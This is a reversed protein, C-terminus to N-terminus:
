FGISLSIRHVAGLKTFSQFAYDARLKAIELPAVVGVGFTSNQEDANLKYGARGFFIESYSYEIGLGVNEANDNPHNLQISATIRNQQDQLPEFAFGLRFMTPPSFGQWDNKVTGDYLRADGDPNVENGFNTLAVAFRSTGLGTWYFTGLDILFSRIKLVAFNEQVYRVTAGVAFQNTLKRGYTLGIAIDSYAFYEGTGLPQTETTVPMDDTRMTVMSVGFADSSSLHYVMGLFDHKMDVFWETHAFVVEQNNFQVVGAPNWYLTTADSGILLMQWLQPEQGLESKSFSYLLFELGNVELYRCSNPKFEV